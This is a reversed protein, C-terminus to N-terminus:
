RELAIDFDRYREQSLHILLLSEALLAIAAVNIAIASSEWRALGISAHAVLYALVGLIAAPLAFLLLVAFHVIYGLLKQGTREYDSGRPADFSAFAPFYLLMLNRLTIQIFIWGGLFPLIMVAAKLKSLATIPMGETGTYAVTWVLFVLLVTGYVVSFPGVVEGFLLQRASIPMSKLLAFHPVDLRLGAVKTCPAVLGAYQGGGTPIGADCLLFEGFPEAARLAEDGLDLRALPPEINHLEDRPHTRQLGIGLRRKPAENM